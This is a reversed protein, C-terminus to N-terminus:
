HIRDTQGPLVPHGQASQSYILGSQLIFGRKEAHPWDNAPYGKAHSDLLPASAMSTGEVQPIRPDGVEECHSRQEACSVGVAAAVPFTMKWLNPPAM